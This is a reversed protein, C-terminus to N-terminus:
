RRRNAGGSGLYAERVHPSRLLRDADDSLVVRGNELVYGRQATKLAMFANQEVLLITTGTRNIDRINAFLAQVLAPALGLSPEDLLLLAPAAMLARSIALMQQEGGSLSWGLQKRREDLRPFMEFVRALSSAWAEHRRRRPTFGVELNELVTLGPFIRRGEPVLSIGRTVIRETDEGDLRDGRFHIEGASPAVLGAITKLTTSKGAGNAGILTVIEGERVELSVDTLAPVGDYGASIGRLELLSV